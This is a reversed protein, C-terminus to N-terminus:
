KLEAIWNALKRLGANLTIPKKKKKAKIPKVKLKLLIQKAIKRQEVIPQDFLDNKCTNTVLLKGFYTKPDQEFDQMEEIIEDNTLEKRLSKLLWQEDDGKFTTSKSKSVKTKQQKARESIYANLRKRNPYEYMFEIIAEIVDSEELSDFQPENTIEKAIKDIAVGLPSIYLSRISRTLRNKDGWRLFSKETISKGSSLFVAIRDTLTEILIKM